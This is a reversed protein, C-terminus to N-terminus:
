SRSGLALSVPGRYVPERRIPVLELGRPARRFGQQVLEVELAVFRRKSRPTSSAWTEDFAPWPEENLRRLIDAALRQKRESDQGRVFIEYILENARFFEIPLVAGPHVGTADGQDDILTVQLTQPTAVARQAFMDYSCFPWLRYGLRVLILQTTQLAFLLALMWNLRSRTRPSLAHPAM